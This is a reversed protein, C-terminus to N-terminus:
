DRFTPLYPPASRPALRFGAPLSPTVSTVTKEMHPGSAIHTTCGYLPVVLVRNISNRAIVTVLTVGDSSPHAAGPAHRRGTSSATGVM